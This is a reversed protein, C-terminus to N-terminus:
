AESAGDGASRSRRAAEARDAPKTSTPDQALPTPHETVPRLFQHHRLFSDAVEDHRCEGSLVRNAADGAMGRRLRKDFHLRIERGRELTGTCERTISVAHEERMRRPGRGHQDIAGLESLVGLLGSCSSRRGRRCASGGARLAGTKAGRSCVSLPGM